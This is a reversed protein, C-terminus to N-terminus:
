ICCGSKCVSRLNQCPVATDHYYPRGFRDYNRLNRLNFMCCSSVRLRLASKPSIAGSSPSARQLCHRDQSRPMCVTQRYQALLHHLRWHMPLACRPILHQSQVSCHHLAHQPPPESRTVPRKCQETQMLEPAASSQYERSPM